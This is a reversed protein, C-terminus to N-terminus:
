RLQPRHTSVQAESDETDRINNVMRVHDADLTEPKAQLLPVVYRNRLADAAAV